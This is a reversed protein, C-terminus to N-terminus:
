QREAFSIPYAANRVGIMPDAPEIGAPLRGPLFLLAKDLKAQESALRDVTITGLKVLTRNEPWAISPDDVVDGPGSVQAYWDFAVSAAAVRRAIEESLYNPGKTKLAAADLVQEGAQPVFRYRVATRRGAADVFAFTTVGFYSLTAYSVPPAKQTTLFTKAIPHAELFRDLATPKPAAPGSSGVARMLQAFEDATAVPFGNFSHSVIDTEGGDALKFKIALGRPSADGVTDPIEPLGTFDSFRVIVPVGEAGFLVARSLRRGDASPVFRGELVIGKAHVARAHHQGFASHLAQVAQAPSEHTTTALDAAASADPVATALVLASLSAVRIRPAIPPM